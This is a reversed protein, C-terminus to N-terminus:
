EQAEDPTYSLSDNEFAFLSIDAALRIAARRISAEPANLHEVLFEVGVLRHKKALRILHPRLRIRKTKPKSEGLMSEMNEISTDVTKLQEELALKKEKLTTLAEIGQTRWTEIDFQNPKDDSM